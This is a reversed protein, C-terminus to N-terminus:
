LLGRATFLDSLSQMYSVAYTQGDPTLRISSIGDVGSDRRPRIEMWPEARDAEIDVRLVRAPIRGREHAYLVNHDESWSVARQSSDLCRLPRPEGGDVPYLAYQLKGGIAVVHRGDPSIVIQTRGVGEETFAEPKREGLDYRYLRTRHDPEHGIICLAKGDPFWTGGHCHVDGLELRVTDGIGTPVMQLETPDETDRVLAWLGDPSFCMALGDALRVAPSGDTGRMFSVGRPCGRGSEDFLVLSGDASLDRVLSWDLWSLSRATASDRTGFDMQMRFSRQCLLLDKRSVDGVLNFGPTQLLTRRAGELTVAVVSPAGEPEQGSFLIESGDPSWCLGQTTSFGSALQRYEGERSVVAPGGGNDARIAHDLFALFRGDPSIRMDSMYGQSRRIVNGIPYELISQGGIERIVAISRGDPGFDAEFVDDVLERPTGGMLPVRALVGLSIFGGLDRTRLRVLLDDSRSVALLHADKLGISRSENSGIRTFFIEYPDGGWSASYVVTQGDSAYRSGSIIGERFTLQQIVVEQGAGQPSRGPVAIAGPARRAHALVQLTFALDRASDFRSEPRKELCRLLVSWLGPFTDELEPGPDPPDLALIASMRDAPTEGPFAKRGTLIEYLIAGLAFLDARHDVQQERIQEPAMYSATGMITGTMTLSHIQPGTEERVLGDPRTLKALGFDLIKLRGDRVLFLNEPKLDRHVIGKAHAAALGEAVQIGMEIARRPAHPGKDILARLSQGELLETVLYSIGDSSGVDYIALVNPHNLAGATRAEQQFRILRDRDAALAGPLVKIAVDRALRPDRARYVEGMGGAGILGLIEYHGLRTGTAIGM